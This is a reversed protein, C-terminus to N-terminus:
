QPVRNSNGIIEALAFPMFVLMAAMALAEHPAARLIAAEPAILAAFLPSLVEGACFFIGLTASAAATFRRNRGFIYACLAYSFLLICIFAALLPFYDAVIPDSVRQRFILILAYCAWFTPIAALTNYVASERMSLGKLSTLAVAAACLLTLVGFILDAVTRSLMYGYLVQGAAILLILACVCGAAPLASVKRASHARSRCLWLSALICVAAAIICLAFFVATCPAPATPLGTIPNVENVLSAARFYAAAAGLVLPLLIATILHM